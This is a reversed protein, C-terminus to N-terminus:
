VFSSSKPMKSTHKTLGLKFQLTGATSHRFELWTVSLCVSMCVSQSAYSGMTCLCLHAWFHLSFFYWMQGMVSIQLPFKLEAWLMMCQVHRGELASILMASRWTMWQLCYGSKVFLLKVILIWFQQLIVALPGSSKRHLYPTSGCLLSVINCLCPGCFSVITLIGFSPIPIDNHTLNSWGSHLYIQLRLHDGFYTTSDPM